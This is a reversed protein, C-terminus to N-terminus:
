PRTAELSMAGEGTGTSTQHTWRGNIPLPSPPYDLTFTRHGYPRLGSSNPADAQQLTLTGGLWTGSVEREDRREPHDLFRVLGSVPQDVGLPPVNLTFEVANVKEGSANLLYGRLNVRTIPTTVIIPPTTATASATSNSSRRLPTTSRINDADSTAPALPETPPEGAMVPPLPPQATPVLVPAQGSGRVSSAPASKPPTVEAVSVATPSTADSANNTTRRVAWFAIVVGCLLGAMFVISRPPWTRAPKRPTSALLREASRFVADNRYRSSSPTADTKM